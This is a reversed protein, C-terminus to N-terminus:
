NSLKKLADAIDKSVIDIDKEEDKANNGLGMTAVTKLNGLFGHNTTLGSKKIEDIVGGDQSARIAYGYTPRTASKSPFPTDEGAFHRHYDITISLSIIRADKQDGLVGGAKLGQTIKDVFIESLEAGSPYGEIALKHTLNVTVDSVFYKSGPKINSVPAKPSSGCGALAVICLVLWCM